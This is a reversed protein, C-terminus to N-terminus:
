PRGGFARDVREGFHNEQLVNRLERAVRRVEPRQRRSDELAKRAQEERQAAGRTRPWWKV